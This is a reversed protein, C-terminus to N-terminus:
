QAGGERRYIAVAEPDSASENVESLMNRGLNVGQGAWSGHGTPIFWCWALDGYRCKALLMPPRPPRETPEAKEAPPHILSDMTAVADLYTARQVSAERTCYPSCTEANHLLTARLKDWTERPVNPSPSAPAANLEKHENLEALISRLRDVSIPIMEGGLCRSILEKASLMDVRETPLPGGEVHTILQRLQDANTM